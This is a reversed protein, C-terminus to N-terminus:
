KARSPYLANEKKLRGRAKDAIAQEYGAQFGRMYALSREGDRRNEPDIVRIGRQHIIPMQKKM